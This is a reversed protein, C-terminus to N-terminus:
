WMREGTPTEKQDINNKTNKMHKQRCEALINMPPLLDVDERLLEIISSLDEEPIIDWTTDTTDALINTETSANDDGFDVFNPDFIDSFIDTFNENTEDMPIDPFDRISSPHVPDNTEDMPIDPFNPPYIPDNTEGMPIDLISPPHVPDNTEDTPVGDDSSSLNSM